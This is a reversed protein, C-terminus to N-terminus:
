LPKSIDIGPLGGFDNGYHTNTNPTLKHLQDCIVAVRTEGGQSRVRLGILRVFESKGRTFCIGYSTVSGDGCDILRCRDLTLRSVNLIYIGVGSTRGCKIFEDSLSINRALQNQASYGITTGQKYNEWRNDLATIGISAYFTYIWQGGTGHNGSIVVNMSPDKASVSRNVNFYIEGGSGQYNEFINDSIWINQPLASVQPPIHFGIAGVNGATKIFRCRRIFIDRIIADKTADPEFDIAGPMDPRTCNKFICDEILITDGDIVSIGNRNNHNVGDFICRRIIADRNHRTIGARRGSGLYLGDGQFGRFEVDEIILDHIGNLHLLHHHEAFGRRVVWGHLTCNSIRIGSIQTAADGSDCHFVPGNGIPRVITRGIGDGFINTGATLDISGVLYEGGSGLGARAPAHVPRKTKIARQFAATDDVDGPFRFDLVSVADNAACVVSDRMVLIGFLAVKAAFKSFNRRTLNNM